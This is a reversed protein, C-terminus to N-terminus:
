GRVTRGRVDIVDAARAAMRDRRTRRVTTDRPRFENIVACLAAAACASGDIALLVNM